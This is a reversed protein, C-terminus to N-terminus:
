YAEPWRAADRDCGPMSMADNLRLISHKITNIKGLGSSPSPNARSNDAMKFHMVRNEGRISDWSNKRSHITFCQSSIVTIRISLCRFLPPVDRAAAFWREAQHALRNATSPPAWVCVDGAADCRRKAAGVVRAPSGVEEVARGPIVGLCTEVSERIATVSHWGEPSGHQSISRHAALSPGGCEAWGIIGGYSRGRGSM